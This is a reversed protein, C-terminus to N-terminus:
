CLQMNWSQTKTFIRYVKEYLYSKNAKGHWSDLAAAMSDYDDCSWIAQLQDKLAYICNM